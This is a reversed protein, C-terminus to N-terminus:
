FDTVVIASWYSLLTIILHRVYLRTSWILGIEDLTVVNQRRTWWWLPVTLVHQCKGTRVSSTASCASFKSFESGRANIWFRRFSGFRAFKEVGKRCPLANAQCARDAGNFVIDITFNVGLTGVFNQIVYRTPPAWHFMFRRAPGWRSEGETRRENSIDWM